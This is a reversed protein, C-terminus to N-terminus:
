IILPFRSPKRPLMITSLSLFSILITTEAKLTMILSENGPTTEWKMDGEGDNQLEDDYSILTEMEFETGCFPCKMKQSATDFSIAGDCCPCKYEQLTAM